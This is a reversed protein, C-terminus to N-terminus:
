WKRAREKQIAEVYDKSEKLGAGTVTRYLKIAEIKDGRELLREIASDVNIGSRPEKPLWGRVRMAEVLFEYFCVATAKEFCFGAMRNGFQTGPNGVWQGSSIEKGVSVWGTSNRKMTFNIYNASDGEWEEVTMEDYSPQAFNMQDILQLLEAKTVKTGGVEIQNRSVKVEQGALKM